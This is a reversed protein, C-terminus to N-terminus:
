GNRGRFCICNVDENDISLTGRIAVYNACQVAVSIRLLLHNLAGHELTATKLHRGLDHLVAAAQPGFVGTTEIGM